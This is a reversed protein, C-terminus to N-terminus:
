LIDNASEAPRALMVKNGKVVIPREILDPNKIMMNLLQDETYTKSKLDLDKYAKEKKRLMESPKLNMKNLLKKLLTKTFPYKYYDVKEFDVGKETLTKVVKRSTTCTPKLYVVIKIM